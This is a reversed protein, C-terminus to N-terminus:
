DESCLFTIQFDPLPAPATYLTTASSTYAPAYGFTPQFLPAGYMDYLAIDVTGISSDNEWRIMKPTQYQRYLLFPETGPPNTSVSTQFTSQEAEGPLFVNSTTNVYGFKDTSQENNLYLRSIIAARPIDSQTTMDKARQKTTLQYSVIDVYDTYTLPAVWGEIPKGTLININGSSAVFDNPRMGLPTLLSNQFATQPTINSPDSPYLTLAPGSGFLEDYLKMTGNNTYDVVISSTGSLSSLSNLRDQFEQALEPGTYFNTPITISTTVTSNNFQVWVKNNRSNINPIAWPMRVETVGIRTFGGQILNQNKQISFDNYQNIVNQQQLNQYQQQRQQATGSFSYNEPRFRDGSDICFLATASPRTIVSPAKDTVEM